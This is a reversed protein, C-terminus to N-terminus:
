LISVRVLREHRRKSKSKSAFTGRRKSSVEETRSRYFRYAADITFFIPLRGLQVVHLCSSFTYMYMFVPLHMYCVFVHVNISLQSDFSIRCPMSGASNTVHISYEESVIQFIQM